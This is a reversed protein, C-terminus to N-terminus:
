QEECKLPLTMQNNIVDTIKKVGEAEKAAQMSTDEQHKTDDLDLHTIAKTQESLEGTKRCPQQSSSIGTFLKTKANRDYIKELTM